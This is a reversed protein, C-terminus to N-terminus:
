IIYSTINDSRSVNIFEEQAVLPTMEIFGMLTEPVMETGVM